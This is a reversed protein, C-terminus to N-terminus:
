RPFSIKSLHHKVWYGLTSDNLAISQGGYYGMYSNHKKYFATQVDDWVSFLQRIEELKVQVQENIERVFTSQMFSISLDTSVADRLDRMKEFEAHNQASSPTQIYKELTELEKKLIAVEKIYRIPDEGRGLAESSAVELDAVKSEKESFDSKLREIGRSTNEKIKKANELNEISALAETTVEVKQLMKELKTKM